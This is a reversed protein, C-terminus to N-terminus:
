ENKGDYLRATLEEASLEVFEGSDLGEPITLGGMRVRRLALVESGIYAIMRKVQHFKGETITLFIGTNEGECGAIRDESVVEEASYGFIGSDLLPLFGIQQILEMLLVPNYIEAHKM